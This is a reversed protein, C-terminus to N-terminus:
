RNTNELGCIRSFNRLLKLGSRQSKEPHFQTAYINGTQIAGVYHGSYECRASVITDTCDLHLSHDFFFHNDTTIGAFFADDQPTIELNNWGVVPVHHEAPLNFKRVSGKVWGLGKHHGLEESDDALLQMGLCIGLFPTSQELVAESLPGILDSTNLSQMAAGFAGVGPLIIGAAKAIDAPNDTSVNAIGLLDLTASVSGVNGMGYDIIAIARHDINSM